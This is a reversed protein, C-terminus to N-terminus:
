PLTKDIKRLLGRLTRQEEPTLVAFVTEIMQDHIPLTDEIFAKGKETLFLRNTKGERRRELLHEAELKDVLYCVNGKTVLLRQSLEQQTLGERQWIQVLVDFHASSMGLARLVLTEERAMKTSVRMFRVWTALASRHQM